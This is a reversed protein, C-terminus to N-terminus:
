APQPTAGAVSDDEAAALLRGFVLKVLVFVVGAAIIAAAHLGWFHLPPMQDLWGGVWGVLTTAGFLFLYNIGLM